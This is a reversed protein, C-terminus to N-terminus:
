RLEKEKRREEEKFKKAYYYAFAGTVSDTTSDWSLLVAGTKRDTVTFENTVVNKLYPSMESLAQRLVNSKIRYDEAVAQAEKAAMQNLVVEEDHKRRADVDDEGEKINPTTPLSMDRLLSPPKEEELCTVCHM